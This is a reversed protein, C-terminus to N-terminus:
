SNAKEIDFLVIKQKDNIYLDDSMTKKLDIIRQNSSGRFPLTIDRLERKYPGDVLVDCNRLISAKTIDTILNEYTDGSYIWIDKDPFNHRIYLICKLLDMLSERSQDLPDGGSFTVGKIWPKSLEKFLKSMTTKSTIDEGNNYDWLEQNHCGPCAHRCGSVWVTVRCGIGNNIDPSTIDIIKM